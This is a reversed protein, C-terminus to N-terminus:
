GGANCNQYTGYPTLCGGSSPGKAPANSAGASPGRNTVAGQGCITAAGSGNPSKTSACGAVSHQPAPDALGAAVPALAMAVAFGGALILRRVPQFTAM